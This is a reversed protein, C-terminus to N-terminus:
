VQRIQDLVYQLSTPDIGTSGQFPDSYALILYIVLGILSTYLSLLGLTLRNPEHPGFCVMTTLFGFIVVILFLPPKALAQELRVMRQDSVLGVDTIIRPRLIGQLETEVELHLVEYELQEFVVRAENSLKDNALAPWDHNIVSEIYDVLLGQTRRARDSDYRKMDRHIDELMMAEREIATEIQNLELVVDAFTLSLFLSVLIGIARFLYNAARRSEKSQVDAFLRYSLIYVALGVVTTLGMLLIIGLFVHLHLLQEILAM